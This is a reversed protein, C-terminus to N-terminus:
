SDISLGPYRRVLGDKSILAFDTSKPVSLLSVAPGPFDTQFEGRFNFEGSRMDYFAGTGDLASVVVLQGVPNLVALPQRLEDSFREEPGRQSDPWFVFGGEELLVVVRARTMPLSTVLKRINSAFVSHTTLTADTANWAMLHTGIGFYVMHNKVAMPLPLQLSHHEDEELHAIVDVPIEVAHTSQQQGEPGLSVLTIQPGGDRLEALWVDRGIDNAAGIVRSSMGRLAGCTLRYSFNDNPPFDSQQWTSQSGIEHFLLRDPPFPGAFLPVSDETSVDKSLTIESLSDGNWAFQTASYSWLENGAYRRVAAALINRVSIAAAIEESSRAIKFEASHELQQKPGHRRPQPRVVAPPPAIGLFHRTDRPLLLDEPALQELASLFERQEHRSSSKLNKGILVRACDSASPRLSLEPYSNALRTLANVALSTNKAAVPQERFREIWGATQDHWGERALLEFLERLCAERQASDPWGEALTTAAENVEGLRTDLLKAAQVFDGHARCKEVAKRFYAAARETQGIRNLLDGAKAYESLEDFLEVAESYLGGRELCRAADLPRRLRSRYLVAAERYHGGEELANAAGTYDGLLEAFIYAARRHRGLRMERNALDRYQTRLKQQYDPPINWHDAPAGGGLNSLSFNTSDATLSTGPAAQGRAADGGMRIAYKLGRDPDNQLMDMLRLVERNRAAEMRDTIKQKQAAAWQALKGPQRPKPSGARGSGSRAGPGREKTMFEAFKSWASAAAAAAAMGGAALAGGIGSGPERASKPLKKLSNLDGKEGIGDQGGGIIEDVSLGPDIGNIAVLQSPFELGPRAADWTRETSVDVALLDAPSREAGPEWVIRGIGPHWLHVREDPILHAWDEATVPPDCVANVPLYHGKGELGYPVCQPSVGKPTSPPIALVGGASQDRFSQPIVFLQIQSHPVNWGAIEELWARPDGGPIMWATAERVRADSFRITLEVTKM